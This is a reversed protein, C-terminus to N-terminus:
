QEDVFKRFFKRDIIANNIVTQVNFEKGEPPFIGETFELSFVKNYGSNLIHPLLKTYDMWGGTELFTTTEAKSDPLNQLHIHIINPYLKSFTKMAQETNQDDFPQYCIGINEVETLDQMLRITSEETDCLSFAHTEMSLTIDNDALKKALKKIKTVSLDWNKEDVDASSQGGPKIKFIKVNLKIAIEILKNTLKNMADDDRDTNHYDIYAGIVPSTIELADMKQKLKTIENNSLSSVHYQWIELSTFDAKKLQELLNVLPYTITHHETWRNIELMVTNFLLQMNKEIGTYYQYICSRWMLGM